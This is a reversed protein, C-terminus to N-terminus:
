RLSSREFWHFFPCNYISAGSDTYFKRFNSEPIDINISTLDEDLCRRMCSRPVRCGSNISRM